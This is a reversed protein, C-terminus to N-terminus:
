RRAPAVDVPSLCDLPRGIIGLFSESPAVPSGSACAWAWRKNPLPILRPNILRARRPPASRDPGAGHSGNAIPVVDRRDKSRIEM